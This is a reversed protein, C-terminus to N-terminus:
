CLASYLSSYPLAVISIWVSAKTPPLFARTMSSTSAVPPVASAAQSSTSRAPALTSATSTTSSSSKRCPRSLSAPRGTCAISETYPGYVAGISWSLRGSTGPMAAGGVGEVGLLVALGGLASCGVVETGVADRTLARNARNPPGRVSVLGTSSGNSLVTRDACGLASRDTM